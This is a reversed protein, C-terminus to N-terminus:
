FSARAGFTWQAGYYSNSTISSWRPSGPGSVEWIYPEDFLNRVAAFVSINETIDYSASVDVTPRARIYEVAGPFDNKARDRAAKGRYNWAVMLTFGKYSANMGMNATEPIFDKFNALQSDSELQLKTYNAFVSFPEGWAGFIGLSQSASLEFGKIRADGVNIRTSYSYGALDPFGVEAAREPTLIESITGFFDSIDKLFVGASLVGNNPLYYELSLDYNRATWPKLSTNAMNIYGIAGGAQSAEEPTYEAYSTNPVIESLSPRGITQAYGARLLLQETINVTLSASPYFGDYSRSNYNARKQFIMNAAAANNNNAGAEPKRLPKGAGDLVIEGTAPDRQYVASNDQKYGWGEDSTKEYRFGGVLRVRNNWFKADLMLYTATVREKLLLSRLANSKIADAQYQDTFQFYEPHATFSDYMSWLSAWDTTPYNFGPNMGSFQPDRYPLASDDATGAQQDPGVYQYQKMWYNVDRKQDSMRFGTKFMLQFPLGEVPRSVDVKFDSVTDKADTPLTSVNQMMYNDLAGYEVPNGAADHVSISGPAGENNDINDFKVQKADLIRANYNYFHGKDTDRTKNRSTSYAAVSEIKWDDGNYTYDLSAGQTLGNRVLASGSQKASTRDNVSGATSTESWGLPRNDANNGTNYTQAQSRNTNKSANAQLNLSLTHRPFPRWDAKLSISNRETLSQSISGDFGITMPDLPNRGSASDDLVNYNYVRMPISRTTTMFQSASAGAVVIGFNKTLPLMISFDASVPTKRSEGRKPGPSKEFDMQDSNMMVYTSFKYQPKSIEFASKSVLNVAGGMLNASIDPLPLKYVEIRSYNNISSQELGFTRSSYQTSDPTSTSALSVGNQTVATFNSAFGRVQIGTATNGDKYEITVGPVHKLFEGINGQNVEGYSDTSVVNKLGASFRQENIAIASANTERKSAVVFREMQVLTDSMEPLMDIEKAVPAGTVVEFQGTWTQLGTYYIQVNVQGPAALGTIRFEGAQDTFTEISTGLVRVRAKNLYMGTSTNKVRGEIAGKDPQQAQLANPGAACCAVFAFTAVLLRIAIAPARSFACKQKYIINRPKIIYHM